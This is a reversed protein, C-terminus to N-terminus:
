NESPNSGLRQSLYEDNSMESDLHEYPDFDTAAPHPKFLVDEITGPDPRFRSAVSRVADDLGFSLPDHEPKTKKDVGLTIEVLQLQMSLADALDDNAGLPFTQLESILEQQWTRFRLVGARVLPQLSRIRWEKKSSDRNGSHKLLELNFYQNREKMQETVFYELSEQYAVGEIGVKKPKYTKVFKFLEDLLEGPGGKFRIYDIIYFGGRARDKGCVMVVNWDHKKKGKATSNKPNGAPDVTIYKDCAEPVIDYYQFWKPQFIMDEARLPNNLYLCSFLYPGMSAEIQALTEENFKEPWVIHGDPAPKGEKERVAREYSTYYKWENDGIWSLLDVQFWRTGVVIIQDEMPDVLMPICTRHFGIAQEIDDKTPLVNDETYEDKDPAVTDDEDIVNYHRGVLQTARGAAEFTAENYM